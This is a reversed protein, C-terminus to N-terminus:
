RRHRGPVHGPGGHRSHEWYGRRLEWRPGVRMWREPVWVYGPRAVTWRGRIWIHRNNFWSWYGPVWVYGVRPPPVVEVMPPPPPVGISFMIDVGASAPVALTGLLLGLAVLSTKLKM